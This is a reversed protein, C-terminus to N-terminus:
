VLVGAWVVPKADEFDTRWGYYGTAGAVLV